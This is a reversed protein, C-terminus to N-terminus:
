WGAAHSLHTRGFGFDSGADDGSSDEPIGFSRGSFSGAPSKRDSFERIEPSQRGRQLESQWIIFLGRVMAPTLDSKSQNALDGASSVIM